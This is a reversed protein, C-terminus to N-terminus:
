RVDVIWQNRRWGKKKDPSRWIQGNAIAAPESTESNPIARMYTLICIADVEMKDPDEKASKQNNTIAPAPPTVGGKSDTDRTKVFRAGRPSKASSPSSEPSSEHGDSNSFSLSPTSPQSISSAPTQSPPTACDNEPTMSEMYISPAPVLPYVLPMESASEESAVEANATTRTEAATAISGPQLLSGYANPAFMKFFSHDDPGPLPKPPQTWLNQLAQYDSMSHSPMDSAPQPQEDPLIFPKSM